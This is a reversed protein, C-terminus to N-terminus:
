QIELRRGKIKAEPAKPITITIIGNQYEAKAEESTVEVPLPILRSFNGYYRETRYVHEDKYEDDKKTEGSLRISNEDIFVNLDEKAVGPLEAKVVVKDETQYVDVRLSATEFFHKYPRELFNGLEKTIHDIERFTNWPILSM